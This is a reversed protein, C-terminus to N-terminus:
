GPEALKKIARRCAERTTPRLAKGDIARRLTDRSLEPLQQAERRHQRLVAREDDGLPATGSSRDAKRAALQLHDELAGRMDEPRQKLGPRSEFKHMRQEREVGISERQLEDRALSVLAVTLQSIADDRPVVGGNGRWRKISRLPLGSRAAVPGPKFSRLTPLVLRHLSSQRRDRYVIATDDDLETLLDDRVSERMPVEKGGHTTHPHDSRIQRRRMLGVTKAHGPLGDPGLLKPNTHTTFEDLVERYTKVLSAGRGVGGLADYTTVPHYHKHTYIEVWPLRPWERPNSGYPAILCFPEDGDPRGGAKLSPTCTLLFNYPRVQQERPRGQNLKDFAHLISPKTIATRRCVIRDLWEPEEDAM